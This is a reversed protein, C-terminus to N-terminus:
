ELPTRAPPRTPRAYHDGLVRQGTNSVPTAKRAKLDVKNFHGYPTAELRPWLKVDLCERCLPRTATAAQNAQSGPVMRSEQEHTRLELKCPDRLNVKTSSYKIGNAASDLPDYEEEIVIDRFVGADKKSLARLYEDQAARWRTNYTGDAERKRLSRTIQTQIREFVEENWEKAHASARRMAEMDKLRLMREIDAVAGNQETYFQEWAGQFQAEQQAAVAAQSEKLKRMVRAHTEDQKEQLRQRQRMEALTHASAPRARSRSQMSKVNVSSARSAAIGPSSPVAGSPVPSGLRSNVFADSGGENGEDLM